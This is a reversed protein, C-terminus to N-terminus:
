NELYKKGVSEVADWGFGAKEKMALLGTLELVDVLTNPLLLLSLEVWDAAGGAAGLVKM